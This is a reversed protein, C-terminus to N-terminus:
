SPQGALVDRTARLGAVLSTPAFWDLLRATVDVAAVQRPAEGPRNPLAGVLPRGGRGVVDYITEVVQRVSTSRGTGLDVSTAPPLQDARRLTALLGAVVDGVYIWDREQAGSTMPFDSGQLAAQFAAPALARRSQGPGYTQFLKAGVIPWSQTRAYMRCFQWAASKSVAYVNM